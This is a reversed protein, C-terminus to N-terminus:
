KYERTRESSYCVNNYINERKTITEQQKYITYYNINRNELSSCGTAFSNVGEISYNYKYLDYKHILNDDTSVYKYYENAGFHPTTKTTVEGRYTWNSTSRKSLSLIEEYNGKTRYIGNNIVIYNYNSCVLQTQTGTLKLATHETYYNNTKVDVLEQKREVRVERLCNSNNVDCKIEKKDCSVKQYNKWPGFATLERTEGDNVGTDPVPLNKQQEEKEKIEKEKQENRECLYSGDCYSYNNLYITKQKTESSCKVFTKLSYDDSNKTIEVYTKNTDCTVGNNKLDGLLKENQLEKLTVKESTKDKKPINAESFHKVGANQVSNVTSNEIIVIEKNEKIEEHQKSKKYLFFKPILWILVIIIAVIIFLKIIFNKWTYESEEFENRKRM